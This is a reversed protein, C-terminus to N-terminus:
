AVLCDTLARKVFQKQGKPICNLLSEISNFTLLYENNRIFIALSRMFTLANKSLFFCSVYYMAHQRERKWAGDCDLVKNDILISFVCEAKLYKKM